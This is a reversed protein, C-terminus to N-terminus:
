RSWPPVIQNMRAYAISQGLHEHMDTAMLTVATELPVTLGFFNVEREREESTLGRVIGLVHTFSREMEAILDDKSLGRLRRLENPFMPDVGAPAPFDWMTPFQTGEAAILVMVDRVSRVSDMPQWDYLTEPFAAALSLFKDRMQEIDAVQTEHATKTGGGLYQASVRTPATFSMAIAAFALGGRVVRFHKM